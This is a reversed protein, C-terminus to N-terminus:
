PAPTRAPVAPMRPRALESSASAHSCNTLSAAVCPANQGTWRCSPPTRHRVGGPAMADVVGGAWRGGCRSSVWSGDGGRRRGLCAAGGGVRGPASLTTRDAEVRRSMLSEGTGTRRATRRARRCRRGRGSAACRAPHRQVVPVQDARVGEDAEVVVGRQTRSSYKQFAVTLVSPMNRTAVTGCSIRASNRALRSLRVRSRPRVNKRIAMKTGFTVETAATPMTKAISNWRSKPTTLQTSPM